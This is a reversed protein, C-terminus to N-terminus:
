CDPFYNRFNGRVVHTEERKVPAPVFELRDVSIEVVSRKEGNKDEFNRQTLHGTFSIPDGKKFNKGITEATVGFAHCNFFGTRKEGYYIENCITFNIVSMSGKKTDITKVEPDATIRGVLNVNNLM